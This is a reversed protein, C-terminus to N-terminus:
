TVHNLSYHYQLEFSIKDNANYGIGIVAYPLTTEKGGSSNGGSVLQKMVDFGVLSYFNENTKVTGLIGAAVGTYKGGLVIAPRFSLHFNQSLLFSVSGRLDICCPVFLTKEESGFINKGQYSYALEIRAGLQIPQAFVSYCELILIVAALKIM